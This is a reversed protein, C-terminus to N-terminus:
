RKVQTWYPEHLYIEMSLKIKIFAFQSHSLIHRPCVLFINGQAHM